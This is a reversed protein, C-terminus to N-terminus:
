KGGFDGWMEYVRGFEHAPLVINGIVIDDAGVQAKIGGGGYEVTWRCLSATPAAHNQCRVPITASASAIPNYRTTGSPLSVTAGYLWFNASGTDFVVNFHRPPTGVAIAGMYQTNMSNKLNISTDEMTMTTQANTHTTLGGAAGSDAGAAAQHVRAHLAHIAAITYNQKVARHQLRVTLAGSAPVLLLLVFQLWRQGLHTM